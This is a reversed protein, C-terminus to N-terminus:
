YEFPSLGFFSASSAFSSLVGIIKLVKEGAGSAFAIFQDKFSQLQQRDEDKAAISVKYLLENVYNKVKDDIDLSSIQSKAEKIEEILQKTDLNNLIMIGNNIASVQNSNGSIEQTIQNYTVPPLTNIYDNLRAAANTADQLTVFYDRGKAYMDEAVKFDEDGYKKWRYEEKYTRGYENNYDRANIGIKRLLRVERETISGNEIAKTILDFDHLATKHFEISSVLTMQFNFPIQNWFGCEKLQKQGSELYSKIELTYRVWNQIDELIDKVSQEEYSTAGGFIGQVMSIVEENKLLVESFIRRLVRRGRRMKGIVIANGFKHNTFVRSKPPILSTSRSHGSHSYIM